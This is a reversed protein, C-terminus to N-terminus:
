VKGILVHERSILSGSFLYDRTTVNFIATVWPWAKVRSDVINRVHGTAIKKQECLGTASTILAVITLLIACLRVSIRFM